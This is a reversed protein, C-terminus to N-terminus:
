ASLAAEIILETVSKPEVLMHFHGADLQYVPWGCQRAQEFDWAYSPSFQIYACPADPWGDFVPIPENFFALARPRIEAVMGKRLSEDPIIESLDTESWTPFREGQQLTQQFETAWEPDELKMLDLRSHNNRPLGADVFVYAAVPRDLAQRIAPLLPGAGSHAVLVLRREPALSRLSGAVSEAQQKWFPQDSRPDDLLSPCVADLGRQALEQRVPGWTLPGVLPSHILVYTLRDRM